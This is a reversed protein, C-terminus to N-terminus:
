DNLSFIRHRKEIAMRKIYIGFKKFGYELFFVVASFSMGCFWIQFAGYFLTMDFEIKGESAKIGRNCVTFNNSLRAVFGNETLVAVFRHVQSLFPSNKRLAFFPLFSVLCSKHIHVLARLNPYILNTYYKVIPRFGIVVSRRKIGVKLISEEGWELNIERKKLNLKSVVKDFFQASQDIGKIKLGSKIIDEVTDLQGRSQIVIKNSGLGAQFTNGLFISFCTCFILFTKLRPEPPTRGSIGLFTLIIKATKGSSNCTRTAAYHIMEFAFSSAAVILVYALWVNADFTEFIYLVSNKVKVRNPVAWTLCLEIPLYVDDTTDTKNVTPILFGAGIDSIGTSVDKLVYEMGISKKKLHVFRIIPTANMFDFIKMLLRGEIGDLNAGNAIVAPPNVMVTVNIPCGHLANTKVPFCERNVHFMSTDLHWVNIFVPVLRNMCNNPSYPFYTYVYVRSKQPKAVIVNFIRETWFYSMSIEIKRKAKLQREPDRFIDKEFDRSLEEEQPTPVEELYFGNNSDGKALIVIFLTNSTRQLTKLILSINKLGFFVRGQILNMYGTYADNCDHDDVSYDDHENRIKTEIFFVLDNFLPRKKLSLYLDLMFKEIIPSRAYITPLLVEFFSRNTAGCGLTFITLFILSFKTAM